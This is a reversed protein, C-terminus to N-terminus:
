GPDNTTTGSVEDLRAAVLGRTPVAALGMGEVACSAAAAAFRLARSTALEGRLLWAVMLAALFVDGSGTPDVVTTAQIAPYRAMGSKRIVVGGRHSATLVITALPALTRLESLATGAPLDDVSALVLGAAELLPSAEPAARRVWGDRAFERLMGQWGIAIAAGPRPASSWEESLEGAVPTLLWGHVGQWERPLAATPIVSCKSLWHQRRHGNSELNEFVPGRDLLVRRLDVGSEELLLLETAKSAASDVGLVCGVRLGLRAATLSCYTASGGLRWGRADDSTVDRSAAGVIVLDLPAGSQSPYVRPAEV